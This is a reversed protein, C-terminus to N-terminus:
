VDSDRRASIDTDTRSFKLESDVGPISYIDHMQETSIHVEPGKRGSAPTRPVNSTQASTDLTRTRFSPMSLTNSDETNATDRERLGERAILTALFSNAYLKGIVFDIALFWLTHSKLDLTILEATATFSTLLCRNVAYVILTHIINNSRRFGTRRNYLLVCLCAAISVDAAVTIVAFPLASTNIIEQIRVFDRRKFVGIFTALGFAFHALVLLIIPVVLWWRWRPSAVIYIRKVFFAQVLVSIVLNVLISIFTGNTGVLLALPNAFNTVLYHYMAQCILAVHATDLAWVAGVLFKLGFSDKPFRSYYLYTQLTTLGYLMASIMAGIYAAGFTDDLSLQFTAM